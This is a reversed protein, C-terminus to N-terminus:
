EHKAVAKAKRVSRTMYNHTDTEKTQLFDSQFDLHKLSSFTIVDLPIEPRQLESVFHHFKLNGLM